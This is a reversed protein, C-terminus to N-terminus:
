RKRARLLFVIQVILVALETVVEAALGGPAGFTRSLLWILVPGTAAGVLASDRLARLRRLAVLGLGGTARSICTVAIVGGCLATIPLPLTIEGSFLIQSAFGGLFAFGTGAVIGLVANAGVARAIRRSRDADSGPAGVWAQLANPFAALLALVLRQLREAASFVVLAGPSAAGVIAVPLAIYAASALRGQLAVNQARVARLVRRRGLSRLFGLRSGAAFWGLVPPAITGVALLLPYVALPAGAASILLVTLGNAALRPLADLLLINRPQGAGIFFWAPSLTSLATAVAIWSAAVPDVPALLGTVIVVPVALPLFVLVKTATALAYTQSRARRGMRAIRQPGNLGWGLEVVVAAASGISQAVAVSAWATAGFASTISPIVILPSLASILPILVFGLLRLIPKSHRPGTPTAGRM